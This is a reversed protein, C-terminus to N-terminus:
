NKKSSFTKFSHVLFDVLEMDTAYVEEILPHDLLFDKIRLSINHLSETLYLGAISEGSFGKIIEKRAHNYMETETIDAALDDGFKDQVEEVAQDKIDDETSFSVNLETALIEIIESRKDIGYEVIGAEHLQNLMHNAMHKLTDFNTKM